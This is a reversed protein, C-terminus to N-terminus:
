PPPSPPLTDLFRTLIATFAPPNELNSLHGADPILAFEAGPISAALSRLSEPTTLSDQGGGMVLIPIRAGALLETSDPRTRMLEQQVALGERSYGRVRGRLPDTIHADERSSAALLREVTPEILFEVGEARARAATTVRDAAAAGSDPSARTDALVLARIRQPALRLLAMSVYGGFSLGIATFTAVSREDLRRLIAAAYDEV